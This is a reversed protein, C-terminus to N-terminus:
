TGRRVTEGKEKLREYIAHDQPSGFINHIRCTHTQGIRHFRKEAQANEAPVWNRDNFVADRAATLTKGVNLSRISAVLYKHKGQQFEQCIQDRKKIPTAGTIKECKLGKALIDASKLHDTWVLIPTRAEKYLDKCYRVTYPAKHAASDSKATSDTQKEGSLFNHWSALLERDDRYDVTVSKRLLDPLDIVDKALRRIYKGKLLQRLRRENKIGSYQEVTRGGPISKYEVWSFFRSFQKQDKFLESVKEGNTNRRCYSLLLLPSYWETIANKIPTGSLLLLREPCYEYIFQHFMISWGTTLEKLYHCEDAIVLGAWDFFREAGTVQNYSIIIIDYKTEDLTRLEEATEVVALREWVNILNEYEMFWNFRLYAPCVILTPLRTQQQLMMGQLTKGLGMEDGILCYHHKLTYHVGKLQYDKATVNLSSQM